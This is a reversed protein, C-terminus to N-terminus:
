SFMLDVLLSSSVSVGMDKLSQSGFEHVSKKGNLVDSAQLTASLLGSTGAVDLAHSIANDAILADFTGRVDDSLGANTFGSSTVNVFGEHVESTAAVPIDPYKEFHNDILDPNNTAKLQVSSIVEGDRMLEVDAGPHNTAEFVRATIEDSDTNEVHVYVLEHYIGKVNSGFGILAEPSLGSIYVGLEENSMESLKSSSRRIAELVLQDETSSFVFQQNVLNVCVSTIAVIAAREKDTPKRM